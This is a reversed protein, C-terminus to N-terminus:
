RSTLRYHAVWWEQGDRYGFLESCAMFFLRWRAWWREPETPYTEALIPLLRERQADFRRLWADCTRQYHRGDVRWHDEVRLDRQHHLLLDDSPMMGGTFFHRAMWDSPGRDEYAYVHERHCFHHVFVKGGPELWGAIRELLLAHNRLHEFMEVSVVRDFRGEPLFDNVDGTVVALNDLGRETARAEIFARQSASNSLGTVQSRPYREALWLSLSGWGCGLDLIRAGDHVQARECTLTLMAAESEDLSSQDLDPGDLASGLESADGGWLGCSYKLHKGLVAEFFSAPVEYHQANARQPVLAIPSTAAKALFARQADRNAEATGRELDRLREALVRRVGQRILQDPVLGREIAEITLDTASELLTSGRRPAADPEGAASATRGAARELLETVPKLFV